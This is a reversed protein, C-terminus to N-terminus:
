GLRAVWYDPRRREHAVAVVVVCARMVYVVRFPFGKVQVRRVGSPVGPSLWPSGSDPQEDVHGTASEVEDLFRSGLGEGREDYWTAALALEEAADPHFEVV